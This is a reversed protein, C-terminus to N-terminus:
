TEEADDFWAPSVNEASETVDYEFTTTSSDGRELLYGGWTEADIRELTVNAHYLQEDPGVHVEGDADAVYMTDRDDALDGVDIWGTHPEYTEVTTGDVTTTGTETFATMALQSHTLTDPFADGAPGDDANTDETPEVIVSPEAEYERVVTERDSEELRDALREESEATIKTYRDGDETWYHDYTIAEFSLTTRQEGTEADVTSERSFFPDGDVTTAESVTYSGELESPEVPSGATADAPSYAVLTGTTALALLAVVGVIAYRRNM